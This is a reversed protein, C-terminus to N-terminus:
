PAKNTPENPKGKNNIKRGRGPKETVNLITSNQIVRAVLNYNLTFSRTQCEPCFSYLTRNECVIVSVKHPPTKRDGIKIGSWPCWVQLDLLTRTGM